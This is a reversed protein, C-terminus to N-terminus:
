TLRTGLRSKMGAEDSEDDIRSEIAYSRVDFKAFLRSTFCRARNTSSFAQLGAVKDDNKRSFKRLACAFRFSAEEESENSPSKSRLSDDFSLYSRM